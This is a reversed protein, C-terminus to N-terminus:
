SITYKKPHDVVSLAGGEGRHQRFVTKVVIYLQTDETFPYVKYHQVTKLPAVHVQALTDSLETNALLRYFIFM